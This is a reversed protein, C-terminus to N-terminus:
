KSEMLKSPNGNGRVTEKKSLSKEYTERLQSLQNMIEAGQKTAAIVQSINGSKGSSIDTTGIHKAINDLAQECSQLFRLEVTTMFKEYKEVMSQMMMSQVDKERLGLDEQV